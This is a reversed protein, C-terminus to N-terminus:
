TRGAGRISSSTSSGWCPSSRELGSGSTAVRGRLAAPVKLQAMVEDMLLACEEEFRRPQTVELQNALQQQTLGAQRRLERLEGSTPVIPAPLFRHHTARAAAGARLPNRPHGTGGSM